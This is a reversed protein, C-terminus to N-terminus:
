HAEPLLHPRTTNCGVSSASKDDDKADDTKNRRVWDSSARCTTRPGGRDTPTTLRTRGPRRFRPKACPRLHRGHNEPQADAVADHDCRSLFRVTSELHGPSSTVWLIPESLQLETGVTEAATKDVFLVELRSSLLGSSRRRTSPTEVFTVFTVADVVVVVVSNGNRRSTAGVTVDKISLSSDTTNGTAVVSSDTVEVGSVGNASVFSSRSKKTLAQIHACASLM